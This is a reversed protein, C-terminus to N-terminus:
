EQEGTNNGSSLNEIKQMNCNFCGSSRIGYNIYQNYSEKDYVKEAESMSDTVKSDNVREVIFAVAGVIFDIIGAAGVVTGGYNIVSFNDLFAFVVTVVVGCGLITAFIISIIMRLKSKNTYKRIEAGAADAKYKSSIKVKQLDNLANVLSANVDDTRSDAGREKRQILEVLRKVSDIKEVDKDSLLKVIYRAHDIRALVADDTQSGRFESLKENVYECTLKEM